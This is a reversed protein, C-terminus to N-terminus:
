LQSSRKLTRKTSNATQKFTKVSTVKMGKVAGLYKNKYKM